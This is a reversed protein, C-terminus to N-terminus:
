HGFKVLYVDIPADKFKQVASEISRNVWAASNGFAGLGIGTLHVKVREQRQEALIAGTCFTAEFASDLVGSVFVTWDERRKTQHCYSCPLGSCFIQCVRLDPSTRVQTDWHIGFKISLNVQELLAQDSALRDGLCRMSDEAVPLYYGNQMHWYRQPQLLKEVDDIMNLQHDGVQGSVRFV